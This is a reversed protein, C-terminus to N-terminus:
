RKEVPQNMHLANMKVELSEGYTLANTKGELRKEARQNTRLANM